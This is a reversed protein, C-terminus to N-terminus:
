GAYGAINKLSVYADKTWKLHDQESLLGVELTLTRLFPCTLVLRMIRKWDIVGQGPLNHDDNTGYNDHLHVLLVRDLFTELIDMNNNIQAHGSDFCFGLDNFTYVSLMERLLHDCFCNEVAIRVGLRRSVPLLADIMQKATDLESAEGVLSKYPVHLVIVDGGLASVFEMRNTNLDVWKSLSLAERQEVSYVGHIDLCRIRYQSLLRKIREIEKDSYLHASCAHECWHIFRFGAEIFMGLRSEIEGGRDYTDTNISFPFM